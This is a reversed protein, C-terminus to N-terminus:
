CIKIIAMCSLAGESNFSGYPYTDYVQVYLEDNKQVDVVANLSTSLLSPGDSFVARASYSIMDSNKMIYYENGLTQSRLYASIYYFGPTECTFKGTSKFSTINNFGTKTVIKDFKVTSNGKIAASTCAVMVVSIFRSLFM